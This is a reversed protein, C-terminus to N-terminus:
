WSVAPMNEPNMVLSKQPDKFKSRNKRAVKQDAIVVSIKM